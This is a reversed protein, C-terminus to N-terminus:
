AKLSLRLLSLLQGSILQKAMKLLLHMWGKSTILNRSLIDHGKELYTSWCYCWYCANHSYLKNRM